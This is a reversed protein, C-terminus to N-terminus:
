AWKKQALLLRTLHINYLFFDYSFLKLQNGETWSQYESRSTVGAAFKVSLTVHRTILWSSRVHMKVTEVLQIYRCFGGRLRKSYKLNMVTKNDFHEYLHHFERMPFFHWEFKPMLQFFRGSVTTQANVRWLWWTPFFTWFRKTELIHVAKQLHWNVNEREYIKNFINCKQAVGIQRCFLGLVERYNDLLFGSNNVTEICVIYEIM